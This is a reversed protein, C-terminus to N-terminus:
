STRRTRKQKWEYLDGFRIGKVLGDQEKYLRGLALLRSIRAKSVGLYEAAQSPTLLFDKPFYKEDINM